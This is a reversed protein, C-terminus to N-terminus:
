SDAPRGNVAINELGVVIVQGQGDQAIVATVDTDVAIHEAYSDPLTM